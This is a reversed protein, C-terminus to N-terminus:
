DVRVYTLVALSPSVRLGRMDDVSRGNVIGTIRNHNFDTQIIYTGSKVGAPVSAFTIANFLCAFFYLSCRVGRQWTIIKIIKQKTTMHTDKPLVPVTLRLRTRETIATARQTIARARTRLPLLAQPLQFRPPPGPGPGPVPVPVPGPGPWLLRNPDFSHISM